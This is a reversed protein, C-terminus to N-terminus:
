RRLQISNSSSVQQKCSMMRIGGQIRGVMHGLMGDAGEKDVMERWLEQLPDALFLCNRRVTIVETLNVIGNARSTM